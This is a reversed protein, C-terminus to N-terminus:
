QQRVIFYEATTRRFALSTITKQKQQLNEKKSIFLGLLKEFFFTSHQHDSSTAETTFNQLIECQGTESVDVDDVHVGDVIGVQITL